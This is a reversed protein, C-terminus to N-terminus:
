RDGHRAPSVVRFTRLEKATLTHRLDRFTLALLCQSPRRRKGIIFARESLSTRIFFGARNANRKAATRTTKTKRRASVTTTLILVVLM